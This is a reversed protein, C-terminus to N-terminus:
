FTVLFVVKGLTVDPHLIISIVSDSRRVLLLALCALLLDCDTMAMAGLTGPAVLVAM